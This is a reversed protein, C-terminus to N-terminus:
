EDIREVQLTRQKYDYQAQLLQRFTPNTLLQVGRVTNAVQLAAVADSYTYGCYTILWYAICCASRNIGAACHILINKNHSRASNIAASGHDFKQLYFSLNSPTVDTDDMVIEITQGHDIGSQAVTANPHAFTQHRYGSLNIIRSINLERLVDVNTATSYSGIFVGPVVEAPPDMYMYKGMWVFGFKILVSYAFYSFSDVLWTGHSQVVLQKDNQEM